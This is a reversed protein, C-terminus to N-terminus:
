LLGGLLSVDVIGSLLFTNSYFVLPLLERVFNGCGISLDSSPIVGRFDTKMAGAEKM